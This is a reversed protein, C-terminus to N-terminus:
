CFATFARLGLHLAPIAAAPPACSGPTIPTAPSGAQAHPAMVAFAAERTEPFLVDDDQAFAQSYAVRTHRVPVNVAFASPCIAPCDCIPRRAHMMVLCADVM